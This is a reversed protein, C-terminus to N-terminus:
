KMSGTTAPIDKKRRHHKELSVQFEFPRLEFSSGNMAPISKIPHILKALTFEEEKEDMM